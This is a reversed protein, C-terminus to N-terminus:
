GITKLLSAQRLSAVFQLLDSEAQEADVDYEKVVDDLISLLSKEGDILGWIFSGIGEQVYLKKMDVLTGKIPVLLDEGAVERSVVKDEKIFIDDLNNM